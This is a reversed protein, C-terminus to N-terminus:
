VERPECEDLASLLPCVSQPRRRRLLAKLGAQVRTLDAIRQDIDTIKQKALERLAADEIVGTDSALLAARVEELTFGLEQSRRIFRLRRVDEVAYVRYGNRARPPKLLGAREYYRVTSTKVGAERALWTVSESM